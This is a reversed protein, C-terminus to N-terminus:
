NARSLERRDPLIVPLPHPDPRDGPLVPHV